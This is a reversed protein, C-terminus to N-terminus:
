HSLKDLRDSIAQDFLERPLNNHKYLDYFKFYYALFDNIEESKHNSNGGTSFDWSLEDLEYESANTIDPNIFNSFYFFLYDNNGKKYEYPYGDNPGEVPLYMSEETKTNVYSIVDSEILQILFKCIEKNSLPKSGTTEPKRGILFDISVQFYDAIKIIQEFTFQNKHSHNLAKSMQPQSIGTERVLEAQCINKDRMLMDIHELLINYNNNTM